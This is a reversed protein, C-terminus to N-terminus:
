LAIHVASSKFGIKDSSSLIKIFGFQREGRIGIMEDTNAVEIM